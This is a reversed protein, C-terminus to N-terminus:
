PRYSRHSYMRYMMKKFREIANDWDFFESPRAGMFPGNGFRGDPTRIRKTDM